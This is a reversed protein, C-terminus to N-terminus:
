GAYLEEAVKELVPLLELHEKFHSPIADYGYILGMINGCIAGTSDSDGSHNVAAVLADEFSDAHRLACYVAIALAEDGTWGEGLERICDEDLRDGDALFVALTMLTCLSNLADPYKDYAGDEDHMRVTGLEAICELVLRKLVDRDIAEGCRIIKDLLMVLMAAPMYGLPNNHTIDAVAGGLSYIFAADEKERLRRCLAVPAVRMVGGCGKSDNHPDIGNVIDSLAGMCTMGPARRDHLEPIEFLWSYHKIGPKFHQTWYWDVYHWTVHKAWCGDTAAAMLGTATFLTMQTDDSFQAVGKHLQYRTIGEAGFKSLIAKRSLFEVPYGLADGAAGGIICGKVKDLSYNM